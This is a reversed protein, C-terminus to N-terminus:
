LVTHVGTKNDIIRSEMAGTLKRWIMWGIAILRSDTAWPTGLYSPFALVQFRKM